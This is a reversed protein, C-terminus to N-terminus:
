GLAAALGGVGFTNLSAISNMVRMQLSNYTAVAIAGWKATAAVSVGMLAIQLKYDYLLGLVPDPNFRLDRAFESAIERIKEAALYVGVAAMARMPLHVAKYLILGRVNGLTV